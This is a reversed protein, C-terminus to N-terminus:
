DKDTYGHERLYEKLDKKNILKSLTDIDSLKTTPMLEMLTKKIENSGAEKKKPSIWQHRHTGM